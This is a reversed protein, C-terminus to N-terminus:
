SVAVINIKYACVGTGTIHVVTIAHACVIYSRAPLHSEPAIRRRGNVQGDKDNSQLDSCILLTPLTNLRETNGDMIIGISLGEAFEKPHNM